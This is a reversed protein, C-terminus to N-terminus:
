YSRDVASFNGAIVELYSSGQLRDLYSPCNFGTCHRRHLIQGTADSSSYVEVSADTSMETTAPVAIPAIIFCPFNHSVLFIFCLSSSPCPYIPHYFFFFFPTFSFFVVFCLVVVPHACELLTM